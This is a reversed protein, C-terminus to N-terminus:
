RARRRRRVLVIVVAAIAVSVGIASSLVAWWRWQSGPYENVLTGGERVTLNVTQHAAGTAVVDGTLSGWRNPLGRIHDLTEDVLAWDGTGSIALVTRNNHTFGQVIGLPGSLDVETQPSGNIGFANPSDPKLPPTMAAQHLEAGGGVFLLGTGSAAAADFTTLRPRLTEGTQQGILNIAQAAYRLHGPADIAVDFDPTFALPLMPFGGRNRSGPTVTVTSRPDLSFTMRDNMPACERSPVYRLELAMGINSTVSEAPIDGTLDLVGSEDLRHTALVTSGSRVLISAEGGVVPTYRAKLHVTADTIPGVAFRAVDFGAYLTSTGLVSAEGTMGLQAFTKIDTAETRKTETYGTVASDAQALIFRRDAFLSVQRTLDDGSGSIVLVAAPSGPKAVTIGPRGGESIEIVRRGPGGPPVPAESTDVDIRVPMPRYLATLEAVLTLAAQQESPSPASGVRIVIQDLYGPLFDSVTKPNPTPGSFSNGLQTLSLSPPQSCSDAAPGRDRLVFRLTASGDIVEAGSINVTFPRSEAERPVPFSGLITDRRDMVEIRGDSVNVVAGAQGTLTAPRVGSPVPISVDLPQNEGVLDLRESVGLSEWRIQGPADVGRVVTNVPDAQAAPMGPGALPLAAVALAIATRTLVHM